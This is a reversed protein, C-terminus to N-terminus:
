KLLTMMGVSSGDDDFIALAEAYSSVTYATGATGASARAAVGVTKAGAAATVVTSLDYDSFVGPRQHTTSM